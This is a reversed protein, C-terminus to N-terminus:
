IITFLPTFGTMDFVEKVNSNLHLLKVEGGNKQARKLISIFARLGSSSIYELAECDVTVHAVDADLLEGLQKQFNTANVTDLRGMVTIVTQNEKKEIKTEM